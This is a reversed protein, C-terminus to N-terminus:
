DNAGAVERLIVEDSAHAVLVEDTGVASVLAPFPLDEVVSEYSDLFAAADEPTDWALRWAVAFAGDPGTAIRVRDGGWGDAADNADDRGIGFHELMFGISAEGIPTDDVEEWGDGLVGVLDAVEVPEPEERPQWADLHIIQETSDPPDAYAADIEDFDPALPNQGTLSSAWVQGATYPFLLQNVMWSPIGTTDPLQQGAGIEMLEEQSLHEFAWAFMTVTADGETLSTLALAVDDDLDADPDFHPPDFAADQLAHTYEHAYTLKAAADLGADTVVVMREEIPDYFGLVQDGLLQLQLEAVDEDGTLLGLARLARNDREREETPYQEDFLAQLEDGLEARTILDAPGIDAAELGRIGIVQEEIAALEALVEADGPATAEASPEQSPLGPQGTAGASPSPETSADASADPGLGIPAGAAVLALVGVAVIVIVLVLAAVIRQTASM